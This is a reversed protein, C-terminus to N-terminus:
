TESLEEMKAQLEEWGEDFRLSLSLSYSVFEYVFNEYMICSYTIYYLTREGTKESVTAWNGEGHTEVYSKLILDEEPKWLNKKLQPKLTKSEM